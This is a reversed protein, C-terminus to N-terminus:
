CDLSDRANERLCGTEVQIVFFKMLGHKVSWVEVSLICDSKTAAFNLSRHLLHSLFLKTAYIMYPLEALIHTACSTKM